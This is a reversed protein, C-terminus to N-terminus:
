VVLVIVAAIIAVILFFVVSAIMIELYLNEDSTLDIGQGSNTTDDMEPDGDVSYTLVDEDLLNFFSWFSMKFLSMSEAFIYDMSVESNEYTKENKKYQISAEARLYGAVIPMLWYSSNVAFM